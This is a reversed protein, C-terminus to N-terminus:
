KGRSPAIFRDADFVPNFEIKKIEAVATKGGRGPYTMRGPYLIGEVPRLDLWEREM